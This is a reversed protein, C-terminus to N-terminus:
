PRSSHDRALAAVVSVDPEGTALVDRVEESSQAAPSTSLVPAAEIDSGGMMDVILTLNRLLEEQAGPPLQRLRLVFAEQLPSPAQAVLARGAASLELTVVRRDADKRDRNVLQRAVLRDIIGTVTGQSLSMTKALHSAALPGTGALARLCVLQPGTLGYTSVLQRSHLDIARTIRRLARLVSDEFGSMALHQWCAPVPNLYSAYAGMALALPM